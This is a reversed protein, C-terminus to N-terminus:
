VNSGGLNEVLNHHKKLIQRIHPAMKKAMWAHGQPTLHGERYYLERREKLSIKQLDLLPDYISCATEKEVERFRMQYNRADAREKVYIFSPLPIILLPKSSYGSWESLIARTIKWAPTDSNDYEPYPRVKTIARKVPSKKLFYNLKDMIGLRKKPKRVPRTKDLLKRIDAFPNARFVKEKDEEPLTEMDIYEDRLPVHVRVLKQDFLKFYPKALCRQVLNEDRALIFRATIKRITEVTPAIIVLDHDFKSGIEQYSLYQQDLAFGAMAFNYIEVRPILKELKGAFSTEYSVGDGFANSDGFLLIRRVGQRKSPLFENNSRFGHSNAQVSYDGWEPHTLQSHISPMLYKGIMPHFESIKEGLWM